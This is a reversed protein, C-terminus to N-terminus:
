RDGAGGEDEEDEEDAAARMRQAWAIAEDIEVGLAAWGQRIDDIHFDEEIGLMHMVESIMLDIFEEFNSCKGLKTSIDETKEEAWEIQERLAKAFMEMFEGAEVAQAKIDEVPERVAPKMEDVAGNLQDVVLQLGAATLGGVTNVLGEAFDAVVTDGLEAQPIEVDPVKVADVFGLVSDAAETVDVTYGASDKSLVEMEALSGIMESLDKLADKGSDRALIFPDRGGTAVTAVENLQAMMDAILDSAGALLMDGTVYAGRIGQLEALIIEAAVRRTVGGAGGRTRAAVQRQVSRALPPTKSGPAAKRPSAAALAAREKGIVPGVISGGYVGFWNILISRIIPGLKVSGKLIADTARVGTKVVEGSSIGGTVVDVIDIVFNAQDVLVNAAYNTAMADFNKQSQSGPPAKGARYAAGVMLGVDIFSQFEEEVIKTAKLLDNIAVTVPAFELGVVSVVLGKQVLQNVYTIHGIANNFVLLISRAGMVGKIFPADEDAILDFDQYVNMGDAAVGALLGFGPWARLVELPMRVVSMAASPDDWLSGWEMNCSPDPVRNSGRPVKTPEAPARDGLGPMPTPAQELSRGSSPSDTPMPSPAAAAPPRPEFSPAPAPTPPAPAVGSPPVAVPPPPGVQPQPRPPPAPVYTPTAVGPPHEPIGTPVTGPGADAAPNDLPVPPELELEGDTVVQQRALLRAVSQNGASRQLMM